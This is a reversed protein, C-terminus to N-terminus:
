ARMCKAVNDPGYALGRLSGDNECVRCVQMCIWGGDLVLEIGAWAHPAPLGINDANDLNTAVFRCDPIERLCASAYCLKEYSFREDFGVVVAQVGPRLRMERFSEVTWAQQVQHTQQAQQAGNAGQQAQQAGDLTFYDIDAAELEQGVGPGGVLFATGAFGISQLYAAATYSTPVIEEPEVEIGLSEFKALYQRRSKSSNNTVFLRRRGSARLAALAQAPRRPVHTAPPHALSHKCPM